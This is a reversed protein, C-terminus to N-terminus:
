LVSGNTMVRAAGNVKLTGNVWTLSTGTTDHGNGSNGTGYGDLANYNGEDLLWGYDPTVNYTGRYLSAVQDATLAQRFLKVDRLGGNWRATGAENYKGGIVLKEANAGVASGSFSTDEANLVGNVYIRGTGSGTSDYTMVVHQWVGYTASGTTGTLSVDNVYMYYYDNAGRNISLSYASDYKKDIIQQTSDGADTPKVWASITLADMGDYGTQDALAIYDADGDFNPYKLSQTNLQGNEVILDSVTTTNDQIDVGFATYDWYAPSTPFNTLTGQNGGSGSDQVYGTGAGGGTATEENLKWWGLPSGVGVNMKSSLKARDATGLASTYVRADSVYGKYPSGTPEAGIAFANSNSTMVSSLTHSAEASKIGDVWIQITSGDYIGMLHHWKNDNVAVTSNGSQQWGSSADNIYFRAAGSAGSWMGLVFVNDKSIIKGTASDGMTTDAKVWASVTVTSLGDMANIDGFTIYDNSGDFLLAPDQNIRVERENKLFDGEFLGGTGGLEWAGGNLTLTGAADAPRFGGTVTCTQNTIDLTGNTGVTISGFSQDHYGNADSTYQLRAADGGTGITLDGNISMESSGGYSKLTGDQIDLDGTTIFQGGFPIDIVTDVIVNHMPHTTSVNLYRTAGSAKAFKLTGGNFDITASSGWSTAWTAAGAISCDITTTGSSFTMAASASNVIEISGFQCTSANCTLTGATGVQCHGTVTINENASSSTDFTGALITLNEFQTCPANPIFTKGSANVILSYTGTSGEADQSASTADGQWEITNTGTFAATSGLDLSRSNTGDGQIIIKGGAAGVVKGVGGNGIGFEECTITNDAYDLIAAANTKHVELNKCTVNGAGVTDFRGNNVDLTGSITFGTSIQAVCSAHNITVARFTGSSGNLDLLTTAPTTIQLDVSGSLTGNNTVAYDGDEGDIIITGGDKTLTSATSGAITLSRCDVAGSWSAHGLFGADSGNGLKIDEGVSLTDTNGQMVLNGDKVWLTGTISASGDLVHNDGGSKNITLDHISGSSGNVDLKAEGGGYTINLNLEGTITGDFNATYNNLGNSSDGESTCSITHGNGVIESNTVCSISACTVNGTLTPKHTITTTDPVIVHYANDIGNSWNASTAWATSSSGNWVTETM